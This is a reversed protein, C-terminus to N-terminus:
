TLFFKSPTDLDDLNDTMIWQDFKVPNKREIENLLWQRTRAVGDDYNDNTLEFAECLQKISLSQIMKIAKAQIKEAAKNM